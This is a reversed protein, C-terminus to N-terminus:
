VGIIDIGTTDSHNLRLPRLPLLPLPSLHIIELGVSKINSKIQLGNRM